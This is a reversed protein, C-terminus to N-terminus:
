KVVSVVFVNKLLKLYLWNGTNEHAIMGFKSEVFPLKIKACFLWQKNIESPM